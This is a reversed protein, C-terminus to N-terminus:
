YQYLLAAADTISDVCLPAKTKAEHSLRPQARCLASNAEGSAKDLSKERAESSVLYKAIWMAKASATKPELPVKTAEHVINTRQRSTINAEMSVVSFELPTKKAEGSVSLPECPTKKTEVSVYKWVKALPTRAISIMRHKRM